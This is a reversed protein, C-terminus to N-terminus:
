FPHRSDMRAAIRQVQRGISSKRTIEQEIKTIGKIVTSHRRRFHEGIQKLSLDTNTRALFFATNRALVIQQKKSKSKLKEPPLKFSSSVFSTISDLTIPASDQYHALVEAALDMTIQQQLLRAKIAMTKICSELQRIDASMNQAVYESVEAPIQVQLNRAKTEIIRLLLAHDPKDIFALFGSCLQSLLQSDMRSLERPLFSSTFVVKRGHEQLYKLTSLLEEQMKEKGQFFHIDELLLIDILKRYRAKFKDITRSKLALIMQNGFEEASVYGIKLNERNRTFFQGMGQILHTKGLGPGSCLFLNEAPFQDRCLSTCAAYALHNCEGVVFDDFSYRWKFSAPAAGYELPLVKQHSAASPCQGSAPGTGQSPATRISLTIDRGLVENAVRTIIDKLREQVWSAVFSNPATLVLRSDQLNGQLPKIWVQFIGPNLEKELNEAVQPWGTSM